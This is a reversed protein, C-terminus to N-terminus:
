LSGFPGNTQTLQAVGTNASISAITHAITQHKYQGVSLAESADLRMRERGQEEVVEDSMITKLAAGMYIKRKALELADSIVVKEEETMVEKATQLAQWWKNGRKAEGIYMNPSPVVIFDEPYDKIRTLLMEVVDHMEM